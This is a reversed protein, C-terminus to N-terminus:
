GGLTTNLGNGVITSAGLGRRRRRPDIPKPALDTVIPGGTPKAPEAPAAKKKGKLAGAIMGVPTLKFLKKAM